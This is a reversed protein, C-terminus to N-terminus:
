GLYHTRAYQLAADRSSINVKGYISRLHADVTRPSIALQSAVQIRTLGNALLRLVERERSTLIEPPVLSVAREQNKRATARLRDSLLLQRQAVLVQELTMSRGESRAQAFAQEGLMRHVTNVVREYGEQEAASRIFFPVFPNPRFTIESFREAAGWLQAAWIVNGQQAM